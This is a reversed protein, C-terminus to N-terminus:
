TSSAGIGFAGASFGASRARTPQTLLVALKALGRDGSRQRGFVSGEGFCHIDGGAVTGSSQREGSNRRRPNEDM